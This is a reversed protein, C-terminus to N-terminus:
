ASTRVVRSDEVSVQHAARLSREGRGVVRVTSTGGPPVTVTLDDAAATPGADSALASGFPLHPREVAYRRPRSDPNHLCIENSLMLVRWGHRPDCRQIYSGQSIGELGSWRVKDGGIRHLEDARDAFPQLDRGLAKAHGFTIVPRGLFLDLIFSRDPLGHRWLLPFGAWSLDAPRLGLDFDEPVPAGLPYRDDSNCASLFGLSQLTSFVRPSGIGHPFVMVRDLAIGTRQHFRRAREAARVLSREQAALSRARYRMRRAEPLYFEYGSHDSGHYCASLWRGQNRLMAVVEPEALDLERPVTAITVHFEHKRAQALLRRYDLGLRGNRLAPDDIIFNAFSAPARWAIEGYVQRVLMMAPLASLPQRASVADALRGVRQSGASMVVRGAGVRREAVAPLLGEATRVWALVDAGGSEGLTTQSGSSEIGVGALEHAFGPDQASFLVERTAGQSWRGEPVAIGLEDAVSRLGRNVGPGIGNLLLTGGGAVYARLLGALLQSVESLGEVSLGLLPWGGDVAREIMAWAGEPTAEHVDLGYFRGVEALVARSRNGDTRAIVGLDSSRPRTRSALGLRPSRPAVLELKEARQHRHDFGYREGWLFARVRGENAWIQRWVVAAALRRGRSIGSLAVKLGAM